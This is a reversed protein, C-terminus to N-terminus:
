PVGVMTQTLEELLHDNAERLAPLRGEIARWFPRPDEALATAQSAVDDPDFTWAEHLWDTIGLDGYAGHGKREYSLHIAPVGALIAQLAGHLRVSIVVAVSRDSLLESTPATRPPKFARYFDLDNQGLAQSHVGWSANTLRALRALAETYRNGGDMLARAVLVIGGGVSRADAGLPSRAIALVALDPMRHARVGSPLEEMSRDDRVGVWTLDQLHRGIARGTPGCLPGISQPMYFSPKGTSAALALQPLHFAMTDLSQRGGPARLYGGGVGVVADAGAVVKAVATGWATRMSTMGGLSLRALSLAGSRPGTTEGARVGPYQVVASIGRWSESHMAVIVCDALDVGSREVLDLTEAVLLGDGLNRGDYAHLIALRRQTQSGVTSGVRAACPPSWRRELPLM